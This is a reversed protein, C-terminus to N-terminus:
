ILGGGKSRIRLNLTVAMNIKIKKSLCRVLTTETRALVHSSTAAVCHLTAVGKQSARRVSSCYHSVLKM